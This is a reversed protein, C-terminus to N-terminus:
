EQAYGHSHFRFLWGGGFGSSSSRNVLRGENLGTNGRYANDSSQTAGSALALASYESTKFV